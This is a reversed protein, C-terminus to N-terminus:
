ARTPSRPNMSVLAMLTAVCFSFAAFRYGVVMLYVVYAASLGIVNNSNASITMPFLLVPLGYITTFMIFPHRGVPLSCIARALNM